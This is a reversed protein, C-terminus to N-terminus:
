IRFRTPTQPSLRISTQEPTKQPNKDTVLRVKQGISQRSPTTNETAYSCTNRSTQTLAATFCRRAAACVANGTREKEEGGETRQRDRLRNNKHQLWHMLMKLTTVSREYIIYGVFDCHHTSM